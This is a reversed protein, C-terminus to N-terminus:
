FKKAAQYHCGKIIENWNNHYNHRYFETHLEHLELTLFISFQNVYVCGLLFIQTMIWRKQQFFNHVSNYKVELFSVCNMQTSLWLFILLLDLMNNQTEIYSLNHVLCIILIMNWISYSLSYSSLILFFKIQGWAGM